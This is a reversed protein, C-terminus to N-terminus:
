ETEERAIIQNYVIQKDLNRITRQVAAFTDRFSDAGGMIREILNKREELYRRRQVEEYTMKSM